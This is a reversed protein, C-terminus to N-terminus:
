VSKKTKWLCFIGLCMSSFAFNLNSRQCIKDSCSLNGDSNGPKSNPPGEPLNVPVLSTTPVITTTLLPPIIASDEETVVPEPKHCLQVNNCNRIGQEQCKYLRSLCQLFELDFLLNNLNLPYKPNWGFHFSCFGNFVAKIRIQRRNMMQRLSQNFTQPYRVVLIYITVIFSHKLKLCYNM